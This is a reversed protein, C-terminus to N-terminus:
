VGGCKGAGCKHIPEDIPTDTRDSQTDLSRYTYLGFLLVFLAVLAYQGKTIKVIPEKITIECSNGGCQLPKKSFLPYIKCGLCIGFSSESFLLILCLVCIFIKITTMIEFVVIIFFMVISLALGISWAFRKQSAGVYEPTQNAVFFRGMILTPAYRPNILVRLIFDLMFFTVFIKTFTFDHTLWSNMFSIMALAFLIGAGARAERENLVRMAYGDVVEGFRSVM